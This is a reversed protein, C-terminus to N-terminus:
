HIGNPNFTRIEQNEINPSNNRDFVQTYKKNSNILNNNKTTFHKNACTYRRNKKNTVTPKKNPREILKPFQSGNMNCHNLVSDMHIPKNKDNNYKKHSRKFHKNNTLKEEIPPLSSSKNLMRKENNISKIDKNRVKTQINAQLPMNPLPLQKYNGKISNKCPINNDVNISEIRYYRNKNKDCFNSQLAPMHNQKKSKNIAEKSTQKTSLQSLTSSRFANCSILRSSFSQQTSKLAMIESNITDMKKNNFKPILMKLSAYIDSLTDLSSNQKEIESLEISTLRPRKFFKTLIMPAKYSYTKRKYNENLLAIEFSKKENDEIVIRKNTYKKLNNIDFSCELLKKENKEYNKSKLFKNRLQKLFEYFASRTYKFSVNRLYPISFSYKYIKYLYVFYSNAEELTFYKEFLPTRSNIKRFERNKRKIDSNKCKLTKFTVPRKKISDIVKRRISKNFKEEWKASIYRLNINFPRVSTRKNHFDTTLLYSNSQNGRIKVYSLDQKKHLINTTTLKSHSNSTIYGM